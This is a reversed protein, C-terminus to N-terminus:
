DRLSIDYSKEITVVHAPRMDLFVLQMALQFILRCYKTIAATGPKVLRILSLTVQM